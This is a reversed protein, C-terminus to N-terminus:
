SGPVLVLRFGLDSIHYVLNGINREAARAFKEGSTWSGGRYVHNQGRSVGQPNTISTASYNGYWDSCWEWVNGTMDNIGLENAQKQGVFHTKWVGNYLWWAVSDINDSGSYTYGKSQNGGKAAYEWEAETPLRYNKGTQSNLKTVYAQVDTWSVNEVPCNDCGSFISPNNGMVASWQAQTVEYKGISFDSLTVHHVPKEDDDGNNSGM